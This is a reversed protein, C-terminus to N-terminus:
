TTCRRASCISCNPFNKMGAIRTKWDSRWGVSRVRWLGNQKRLDDTQTEIAEQRKDLLRERERLEERVRSLEEEALTKQQLAREKIELEAERKRDVVERNAREIINQAESEADKKRLHDLFKVVVFTFTAAILASIGGAITPDISAIIPSLM